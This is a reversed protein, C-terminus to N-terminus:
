QGTRPQGHRTRALNSSLDAINSRSKCDLRMDGKPKKDPGHYRLCHQKFFSVIAPEYGRLAAVDKSAKEQADARGLFATLVAVAM